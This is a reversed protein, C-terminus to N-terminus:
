ILFFYFLLLYYNCKKWYIHSRNIWKLIIVLIRIEIETGKDLWLTIINLGVGIKSHIRYNVLKHVGLFM